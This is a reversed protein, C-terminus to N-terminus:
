CGTMAMANGSAAPMDRPAAANSDGLTFPTLRGSAPLSPAADGTPAPPECNGAAPASPLCFPVCGGVARCRPLLAPCDAPAAPAAPAAVQAAKAQDMREACAHSAEIFLTAEEVLQRSEEASHASQSREHARLFYHAFKDGAYPDRFLQPEVLQRKFERVIEEPEDGLNQFRERTVGRAAELLAKYATEAAGKTDGTELKLQADFAIREAAALGFQVFPVIEGACEGVGMDGTTYLRPDGWDSYLEPKDDFSPLTEMLDKCMERVKAKGIRKIYSQFSEGADRHKMFADTIREVAEPV